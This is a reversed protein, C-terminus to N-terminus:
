FPWTLFSLSFFFLNGTNMSKQTKKWWQMTCLRYHYFMACYVPQLPLINASYMTFASMQLHFLPITISNYVLFGFRSHKVCLNMTKDAGDVQYTHCTFSSESSFVMLSLCRDLNATRDGTITVAASCSFIAWIAIFLCIFWKLMQNVKYWGYIVVVSRGKIHCRDM